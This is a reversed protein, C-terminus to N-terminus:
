RKFKFLYRKSEMEQDMVEKWSPEVESLRQLSDGSRFRPDVARSKCLTETDVGPEGPETGVKGEMRDFLKRFEEDGPLYPKAKEVLAEDDGRLDAEDIYGNELAYRLFDGAARFMKASPMGAYYDDNMKRFLDAFRQASERDAFYWVGEEARLRELFYRVGGAELVGVALADRLVYDIRDACLDPLDKEKLPFNKDDLVCEPDLDYLRLIEPIESRRVFGEFISDQYNQKEESGLNLVYETCHSFATHSVDHILGAAQEALVAGFRKLLLCVGLSHGFRTHGSVDAGTENKWFPGYGLQNIKKLRRLSPSDILEWLLPEDIRCTGYVVDQYEM